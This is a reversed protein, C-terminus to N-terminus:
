TSAFGAAHSSKPRVRSSSRPASSPESLPASLCRRPPTASAARPRRRAPGIRIRADRRRDDALDLERRPGVDQGALVDGHQSVDGLAPLELALEPARLTELADAPEGAADCLVEVVHEGRDAAIRLQQDRLDLGPADLMVMGSLDVVRCIAGSRQGRLQEREAAALHELRAGGLEVAEDLIELAHERPEDSVLDLEHELQVRAHLGTRMSGPCISCTSTLRTTLAASTVGGPPRMTTRVAFTRHRRSQVVQRVAAVGDERDLVRARADVLGRELM